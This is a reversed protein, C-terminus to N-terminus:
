IMYKGQEAKKTLQLAKQERIGPEITIENPHAKLYDKITYNLPNYSLPYSKANICWHFDSIGSWLAIDFGLITPEFFSYLSYGKLNGTDLARQAERISVVQDQNTLDFTERERNYGRSIIVNDKVIFSVYPYIKFNDMIEEAYEFLKDFITKNNGVM